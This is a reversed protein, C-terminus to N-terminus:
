LGLTVQHPLAPANPWMRRIEQDILQCAKDVAMRQTALEVIEVHSAESDETDQYKTM